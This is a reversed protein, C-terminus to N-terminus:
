GDCMRRVMGACCSYTGAISHLTHVRMEPAHVSLRMVYPTHRPPTTMMACCHVVIHQCPECCCAVLLVVAFARVTSPPEPTAAPTTATPWSPAWWCPAPIRGLTPAGLTGRWWWRYHTRVPPGSTSRQSTAVWSDLPSFLNPPPPYLCVCLTRIRTTHHPTTHPPPPRQSNKCGM